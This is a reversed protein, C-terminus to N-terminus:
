QVKIEKRNNFPTPPFQSRFLVVYDLLVHSCVAWKLGTIYEGIYLM